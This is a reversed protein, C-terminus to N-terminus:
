FSGAPIEYDEWNWLPADAQIDAAPWPWGLPLPCGFSLM